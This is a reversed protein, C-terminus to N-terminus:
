NNNRVSINYIRNNLKTIKKYLAKIFIKLKIQYEDSTRQKWLFFFDKIKADAIYGTLILDEQKKRNQIIINVFQKDNCQQVIKKIDNSCLIQAQVKEKINQNNLSSINIGSMRFGILIKNSSVIGETQSFKYVSIRDACWAKPYHSFGKHELLIKKRYLFESITQCRYDNVMHWINDFCSEWEPISPYYNIINDNEDVIKVRSRFVNVKPYKQSLNILEEIFTSEYYDDDCLLSFFDGNSYELCKNWNKAPDEKGLNIKNKYYIIRNDKFKDVINKITNTSSDDVILIELNKYTQNIASTIAVDLFEAKYAPIAITVLPLNM